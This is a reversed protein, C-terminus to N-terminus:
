AARVRRFTSRYETSDRVSEDAVQAYVTQMKAEIKKWIEDASPIVKEAEMATLMSYTSLLHVDLNSLRVKDMAPADDVLLLAPANAHGAQDRNNFFDHAALEGTDKRHNKLGPKYLGKSRKEEAIEGILSKAITVQGGSSHREFWSAIYEKDPTLESEHEWAYKFVAEFYVEDPVYIPLQFRLLCDLSEGLGLKIIPGADM